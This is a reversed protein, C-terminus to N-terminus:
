AFDADLRVDQDAPAVMRQHGLEALLEAQEAVHRDLRDDLLAIHFGRDVFQREHQLLLPHVIEHDLHELELRRRVGLIDPGLDQSADPRGPVLDRDPHDAFVDLQLVGVLGNVLRDGMRADGVIGLHVDDADIGLRELGLAAQGGEAAQVANEHRAAEALPPDFALDGRGAIGPLMAHRIVPKTEAQLHGDHFKGAVDQAEAAGVARFKVLLRRMGHDVDHLLLLLDDVLAGGHPEAGIFALQHGAGAGLPGVLGAAHALPM